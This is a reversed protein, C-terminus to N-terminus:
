AWRSRCEKGVRREESRVESERGIAAVAIDDVFEVGSQCRETVRVDGSSQLLKLGHRGYRARVRAVASRFDVDVRRALKDVARIASVVAYNDEGDIRCGAM